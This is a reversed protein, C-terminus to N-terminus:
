TAAIRAIAERPTFVEPGRVGEFRSGRWARTMEVPFSRQFCDGTWSRTREVPPEAQLLLCRRGADDRRLFSRQLCDGSWSRTMEVPLEAFRLRLPSVRMEHVDRM